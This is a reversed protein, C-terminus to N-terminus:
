GPVETKGQGEHLDGDVVQGRGVDNGAQSHEDPRPKACRSRRTMTM